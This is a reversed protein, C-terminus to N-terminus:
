LERNSGEDGMLASDELAAREFPVHDRAREWEKNDVKGLEPTVLLFLLNASGPVVPATPLALM